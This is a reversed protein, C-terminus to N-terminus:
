PCPRKSPVDAASTSLLYWATFTKRRVTKPLRPPRNALCEQLPASWREPPLTVVHTRASVAEVKIPWWRAPVLPPVVDMSELCDVMAMAVAEASDERAEAPADLDCVDPVAYLGKIENAPIVRPPPSPAAVVPAPPLRNPDPIPTPAPPLAACYDVGGQSVLGTGPPCVVHTTLQAHAPLGTTLLLLLGHPTCFSTRMSASHDLHLTAALVRTQRAGRWTVGRAVRPQM